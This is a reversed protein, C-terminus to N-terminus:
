QEYTIDFKVPRTLLEAERHPEQLIRDKLGDRYHAKRQITANCDGWRRPLANYIRLELASLNLPPDIVQNKDM